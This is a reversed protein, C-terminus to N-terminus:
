YEVVLGLDCANFHRYPALEGKYLFLLSTHSTLAATLSGGFYGTDRFVGGPGTAFYTTGGAFRALLDNDALYEHAWGGFLEPVIKTKAWFLKRALRVGMESRLSQADNDALALGFGGDGTEDFGVQRYFIYQLSATPSLVCSGGLDLDKGADIYIAADHANFRGEPSGSLLGAAANRTVDNDHFGYTVSCDLYSGDAFYSLYPGLRLNDITGVGRADCFRLDTRAYGLGLGVIAADAMKDVGVQVGATSARFGLHEATSNEDFFLGFPRAFVATDKGCQGDQQLAARDEPWAAVPLIPTVGSADRLNSYDSPLLSAQGAAAMPNGQRRMRLYESQTEAMYQTTRSASTIVAQYPAANLQGVTQRFEASSTFLLENVLSAFEGGATDGDADLAAAVHRDNAGAVASAFLASRHVVVRFIKASDWEYRSFSLFDSHTTFLPSPATIAGTATLLTFRDGGRIVSQSGSARGIDIQSGAQLDINGTVDIRTSQQLAEFPKSLLFQLKGEGAVALNGQISGNIRATGSEVTTTGFNSIAGEYLMTPGAGAQGPPNRFVLTNAGNGGDLKGAMSGGQFEVTDDGDGAHVDGVITGANTIRDAGSGTHIAYFSGSILGRNDITTAGADALVGANGAITGTNTLTGGVKFEVVADRLSNDVNRGPGLITGHNVLAVDASSVVIGQLVTADRQVTVATGGPRVYDAGAWVTDCEGTINFNGTSRDYYMYSGISFVSDVVLRTEPKGADYKAAVFETLGRISNPNGWDYTYGLQTWPFPPDATYTTMNSNFWARHGPYKTDVDSPWDLSSKPNTIDPDKCPRTLANTDVWLEVIRDPTHNEPMGLLQKTRLSMEGPPTNNAKHWAYLEPAATVWLPSKRYANDVYGRTYGTFDTFATMLVQHTGPDNNQWFLSKNSADIVTLNDVADKPEPVYYPAGDKTVHNMADIFRPSFATPYEGGAAPPGIAVAIWCLLGILWRLPTGSKTRAAFLTSM